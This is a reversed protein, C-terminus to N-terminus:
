TDYTYKHLADYLKKKFKKNDQARVRDLTTQGQNKNTNKKLGKSM